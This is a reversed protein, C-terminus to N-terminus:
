AAKDTDSETSSETKPKDERKPKPKFTNRVNKAVDSVANRVDDRRQAPTRKVPKKPAELKPIEIKPAEVKPTTKKTASRDTSESATSPSATSALGNKFNDAGEQLADPLQKVTEAIREPPTILSFRTPTAPDSYDRDTYGMDVGLKLTPEIAGLVPETFATTNLATSFDRFPQLLPLHETKVLIYTDHGGGPQDVPTVIIANPDNLNTADPTPDGHLYVFGAAANALSLPNAYAPFDGIPDYEITIFTEDYPSQEAAGTSTFGLLGLPGLDPFRAYIGGNPVTPAAIYVFEINGGPSEITGANLERKYNEAVLSGESYGVIYVTGNPGAAARAVGVQEILPARGDAVGQDIPLSASYHVAKYQADSVSVFEGASPVYDGRFKDQIRASETDSAGGIGVVANGPPLVAALADAVQGFTLVATMGATASAVAVTSSRAGKRHNAM